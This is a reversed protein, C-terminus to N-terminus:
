KMAFALWTAGYCDFHFRNGYSNEAYEGIIRYRGRLQNRLLKDASIPELWVIDQLHLEDWKLPLDTRPESETYIPPAFYLETNGEILERNGDAFIVTQEIGNVLAWGMNEVWIPKGHFISISELPIKQARSLKEFSDYGLLYEISVSYMEAMRKIAAISPEKREGEWASLTPQAVGLRKAADILKIKNQIRAEKFRWPMKM